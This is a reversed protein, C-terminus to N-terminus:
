ENEAIWNESVTRMYRNAERRSTLCQNVHELRTYRGTGDDELFAAGYLIDSSGSGYSLECLLRRGSKDPAAWEAHKLVFPTLLNKCGKYESAFAGRPTLDVVPVRKRPM